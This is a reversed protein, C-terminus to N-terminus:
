LLLLSMGQLDTTNLVDDVKLLIKVPGKNKVLGLLYPMAVGAGFDPPSEIDAEALTLVEAVSEVITGVTIEQGAQQIRVVIICTRATDDEPSLGFKLRLDVVPVVRGRLNMVGRVHAPMQPVMTIEQLGMIERVQLVSMGFEEKGVQFILYKGALAKLSAPQLANVTPASLIGEM